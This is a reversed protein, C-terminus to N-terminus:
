QIQIGSYISSLSASADIELYNTNNIFVKCTKDSPDNDGTGAQMFGIFGKQAGNALFAWSGDGGLATIVCSVGAAPQFSILTTVASIGNVVDGVAM